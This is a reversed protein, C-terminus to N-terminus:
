RHRSQRKPVQARGAPGPRRRSSQCMRDLACAECRTTKVLCVKEGHVVMLRYFAFKDDAPIARELAQQVQETSWSRRTLGIRKSLRTVAADAPLANGGLSLLVVTAVTRADVDELQELFGRAQPLPLRKLFDLEVSGNKLFLQQLVRRIRKAKVEPEAVMQIAEAVDGPRTVRLENFDVFETQLRKLAQAAKRESTQDSLLGLVLQELPSRRNTPQPRGHQRELRRLVQRWHSM